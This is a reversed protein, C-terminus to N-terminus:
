HNKGPLQKEHPASAKLTVTYVADLMTGGGGWHVADNSFLIHGELLKLFNTKGIHWGKLDMESFNYLSWINIYCVVNEM